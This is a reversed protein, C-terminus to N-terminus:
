TTYVRELTSKFKEPASLTGRSNWHIEGEGISKYQNQITINESKLYGDGTFYTGSGSSYHAKKNCVERQQLIEGKKNFYQM